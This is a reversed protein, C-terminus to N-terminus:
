KLLPKWVEPKVESNTLTEVLKIVFEIETNGSSKVIKELSNNTFNFLSTLDIKWIDNERYFNLFADSKQGNSIFEGIAKEGLIEIEGISNNEISNKGVLGNNIAYILIASGDFSNLEVASAKHRIALVMFKDLFPLSTISSSDASKIKILLDNYYQLTKSDVYKIAEEGNDTLVAARYSEFSAHIAKSENRQAQSLGSVLLLLIICINKNL